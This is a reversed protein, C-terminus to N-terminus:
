DKRYLGPIGDLVPRNQGLGNMSDRLVGRGGTEEDGLKEAGGGPRWFNGFRGARPSWGRGAGGGGSVSSLNNGPRRRPLPLWDFWLPHGRRSERRRRGWMVFMLAILVLAAVGGVVPAAIWARSGAAGADALDSEVGGDAATTTTPLVTTEPAATAPSPTVPLTLVSTVYITSSGPAVTSVVVTQTTMTTPAAPPPVGASPSPTPTFFTGGSTSAPVPVPPPTETTAPAPAPTESTSPTPTPVPQATVTTPPAVVTTTEPPPPPAQVTTTGPSPAPAPAPDAAAAANSMIATDIGQDVLPDGPGAPGKLYCNKFGQSMSADFSVAGCGGTGACQGLCDQFTPAFAQSIDKGNIINNCFLQFAMGNPATASGGLSGCNSSATPFSAVAMDIKRAPRAKAPDVSSKLRCKKNDFSVGECKPHFSSCIDACATLSDADMTSQVDGFDNLDCFVTFQQATGIQTGNGQPCPSDDRRDLLELAEDM